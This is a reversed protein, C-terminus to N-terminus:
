KEGWAADDYLWRVEGGYQEVTEAVVSVPLGGKLRAQRLIDRKNEGVAFIVLEHVHEMAKLSLSIREAPPKPSNRVPVVWAETPETFGPNGPFLSMSHGDEGVGVWVLDFREIGAQKIANDFYAAAEDVTGSTDPAIKQVSNTLENSEFLKMITGWGSEPDTLPLMREDGILVTVLNWDLADAYSDVIKKYALLPSTGGAFAWTASGNREIALKLIEIANEAAADAVQEANDYNRIESM